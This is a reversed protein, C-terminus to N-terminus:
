IISSPGITARRDRCHRSCRIILSGTAMTSPQRRAIAAKESRLMGPGCITSPATMRREPKAASSHKYRCEIDSKMDQKDAFKGSFTGIGLYGIGLTDTQQM